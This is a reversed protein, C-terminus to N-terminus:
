VHHWDISHSGVTLNETVHDGDMQWQAVHGSANQFLVDAKGDHNYDGTGIV